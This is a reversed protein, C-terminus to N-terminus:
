NLRPDFGIIGRLRAELAAQMKDLLKGADEPSSDTDKFLHAMVFPLFLPGDQRLANMLPAPDGQMFAQLAELASIEEVLHIAHPRGCECTPHPEAPDVTALLNRRTELQAEVKELEQSFDITSM